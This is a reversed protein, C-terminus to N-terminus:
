VRQGYEFLRFCPLYQFLVVFFDNILSHRRKLLYAIRYYPLVFHRKNQVCNSIYARNCIQIFANSKHVFPIFPTVFALM